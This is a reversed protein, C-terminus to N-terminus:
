FRGRTWWSFNYWHPRWHQTNDWRSVFKCIFPGCSDRPVPLSPRIQPTIKGSESQASGFRIRLLGTQLKFNTFGFKKLKTGADEV